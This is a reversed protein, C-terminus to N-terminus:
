YGCIALTANAVRQKHGSLIFINHIYPCNSIRKTCWHHFKAFLNKM